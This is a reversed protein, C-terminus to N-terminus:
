FQKIQCSNLNSLTETLIISEMGNWLVQTADENSCLALFYQDSICAQLNSHM